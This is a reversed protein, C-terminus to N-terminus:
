RVHSRCTGRGVTHMHCNQYTPMRTVIKFTGGGVTVVNRCATAFFTSRDFLSNRRQRFVYPTARDAAVPARPGAHDHRSRFTSDQDDVIIGIDPLPANHTARAPRIRPLRLMWRVRRARWPASEPPGSTMTSSRTICLHVTPLKARILLSISSLLSARVNHNVPSPLKLAAATSRLSAYVLMRRDLRQQHPPRRARPRRAAGRWPVPKRVVSRSADNPVHRCFLESILLGSVTTM